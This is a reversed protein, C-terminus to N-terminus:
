SSNGPIDILLPSAVSHDVEMMVNAGDEAFGIMNKKYSIDTATFVAKLHECLASAYADSVPILALFADAVDGNKNRVRAM